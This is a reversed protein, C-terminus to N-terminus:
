LQWAKVYEVCFEAQDTAPDPSGPWNGGIALNLIMNMPQLTVNDTVVHVPVRDVFYTIQGAVREVGYTHWETSDVNTTSELSPAFTGDAFKFHYNHYVTNQDLGPQEFIDIEPENGGFQATYLWFAPWVGAAFDGKLRAEVYFEDTLWNDPTTCLKGSTWEQGNLPTRNAQIKLGDPGTTFPSPADVQGELTAIYTQEENNIELDRGWPFESNWFQDDLTSFNEDVIQVGSPTYLQPGNSPCKIKLSDLVGYFQDAIDKVVQVQDHPNVDSKGDAIDHFVNAADKLKPILKYGSQRVEENM